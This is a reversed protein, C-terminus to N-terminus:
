SSTTARRRTSRSRIASATAASASATACTSWTRSTSSGRRTSAGRPLLPPLRAARARHGIEKEREEYVSRPAADYLDSRSSSPMASSTSIEDPLEDRLARTFGQCIGGLGLGGAAQEAPLEGRGDRRHDRDILDLLRERQERSAPPVLEVLEDYISSPGDSRARGRPRAERGLLQYVESSCRRSSSSSRSRRSAGQPRHRAPKGDEDRPMCRRRAFMGLSSASSRASVTTTSRELSRRDQAERRHAQGDDDLVEPAYSGLLLQQRMDYVTKRQENM